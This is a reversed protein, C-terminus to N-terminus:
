YIESFHFNFRQLHGVM